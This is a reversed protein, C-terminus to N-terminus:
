FNHLHNGEKFTSSEDALRKARNEWSKLVEQIFRIENKGFLVEGPINDSIIRPEEDGEPWVITM